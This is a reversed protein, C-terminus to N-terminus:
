RRGMPNPAVALTQPCRFNCDPLCQASLPRAAQCRRPKGSVKAKEPPRKQSNGFLDPRGGGAGIARRRQQFDFIQLGMEKGAAAQHPRDVADAEANHGAFGQPQHPFRTGALGDSAERQQPKQGPAGPNHAPPHQEVPLIRQIQRFLFHLPQPTDTHPHNQLVRHSRKVRHEGDSGLDSLRQRHM